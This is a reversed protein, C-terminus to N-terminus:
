LEVEKSIAGNAKLIEAIPYCLWAFDMGWINSATPDGAKDPNDIVIGKEDLFDEFVEIITAVLELAEGTETAM